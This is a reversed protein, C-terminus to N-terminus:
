YFKPNFCRVSAGSRRCISKITPDEPISTTASNYHFQVRALAAVVTFTIDSFVSKSDDVEGSKTEKKTTAAKLAKLERNKEQRNKNKSMKDTETLLNM